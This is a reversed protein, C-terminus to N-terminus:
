LPVVLSDVMICVYIHYIIDMNPSVIEFFQSKCIFHPVRLYLYGLIGTPLVDRLSEDTPILQEKSLRSRNALMEMPIFSSLVLIVENGKVLHSWFQLLALLNEM